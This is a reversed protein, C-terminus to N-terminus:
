AACGAVRLRNLHSAFSGSPCECRVATLFHDGTASLYM